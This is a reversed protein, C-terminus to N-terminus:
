LDNKKEVVRYMFLLLIAFISFSSFFANMQGFLTAWINLVNNYFSTKYKM